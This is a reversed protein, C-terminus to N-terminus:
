TYLLAGQVDHLFQSCFRRVQNHVQWHLQKPVWAQLVLQKLCLWASSALNVQLFSNHWQRKQLLVVCFFQANQVQPSFRRTHSSRSYAALFITVQVQITHNQLLDECLRVTTICQDCFIPSNTAKKACSFIWSTALSFYIWMGPCAKTSQSSLSSFEYKSGQM